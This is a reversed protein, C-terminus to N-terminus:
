CSQMSFSPKLASDTVGLEERLREHEEKSIEPISTIHVSGPGTQLVATGSGSATVTVDRTVTVSGQVGAITPNDAGHTQQQIQPTDSEKPKSASRQNILAVGIAALAAFVAAIVTPAKWWRETTKTEGQSRKPSASQARKAM